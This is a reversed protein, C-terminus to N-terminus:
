PRTGRQSRSDHVAWGIVSDRVPCERLERKEGILMEHADIQTISKSLVTRDRHRRSLFGFACM